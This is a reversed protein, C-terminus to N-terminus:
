DVLRLKVPTPDMAVLLPRTISTFSVVAQGPALSGIQRWLGDDVSGFAQRLERVVAADTLRHLIVNNLLGLIERPLHQPLQSVFCLGLRRKRGRRAIRALQNFLIPMQKIREASIFEHAEEVIVLTRPPALGKTEAVKFADEQGLQVLRLVEAIALNRQYPSDMDSLDILSVRGPEVFSEARLQETGKIDLMNLRRIVGLKGQLARWSTVSQFKQEGHARDITTKFEESWKEVPNWNSVPARSGELKDAIARVVDYIANLRLGPFGREQDDWELRKEHKREQFVNITLDVALDYARYFRETQADNLDLIEAIAAPALADFTLTFPSRNPHNRNSPEHNALHYLTVRDAPLGAPEQRRAALLELMAPQDTPEHIHSYEGEVDLVVVAMQAAQAQAILRSVTTSKGGGTSGLVGLHRPLVNKDKSDIAVEIGEYGVALGLHLDGDVKLFDRVENDDLLRAPSNPLPRFRPPGLAKGVREGLIEVAARGHYRPLFMTAGRVATTVILASDGRLGDPEHFPGETVVGLFAAPRGPHPPETVIEVFACNAVKDLQEAPIVVTVTGDASAPTDFLTVGVANERLKAPEWAGRAEIEAQNRELAAAPVPQPQHNTPPAQM